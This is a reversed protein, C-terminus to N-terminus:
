SRSVDEHLVHWGESNSSKVSNEPVQGFEPKIRLPITDGSGGNTGRMPSPSDENEGVGLGHLPLLLLAAFRVSNIFKQNGVGVAVSPLWPPCNVGFFPRRPPFRISANDAIM